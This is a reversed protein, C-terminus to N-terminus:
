VFCGWVYFLNGKLIAYTLLKNDVSLIISSVNSIRSDNKESKLGIWM